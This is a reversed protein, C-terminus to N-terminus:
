HRQHRFRAQGVKLSQGYYMTPATIKADKDLTKSDADFDVDVAFQAKYVAVINKYDKDWQVFVYDGM